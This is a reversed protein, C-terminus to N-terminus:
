VICAYCHISYEISLIITHTDTSWDMKDYHTCM